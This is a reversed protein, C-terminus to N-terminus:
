KMLIHAGSAQIYHTGLDFLKFKPAAAPRVFVETGQYTYSIEGWYGPRIQAGIAGGYNLAANAHIDGGVAIGNVEYSDLTGGWQWGILPTVELAMSSARAEGATGCVALLSVVGLVALLGRVARGGVVRGAHLM